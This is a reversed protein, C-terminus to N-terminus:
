LLLRDNDDLTRDLFEKSLYQHNEYFFKIFSKDIFYVDCQDEIFRHGRGCGQEVTLATKHLYWEPYLESKKRIFDDGLFLFPCKFFIIVNCDNGPLNVGETMSAALLVGDTSMRLDYLAKEKETSLNYTILRNVNKSHDLIARSFEYSGTHVLIKKTPNDGIIKDLDRIAGPLDRERNRRTLSHKGIVTYKSSSYDFHNNIKIHEYEDIGLFEATKELNGFTASMFVRQKTYKQFFVKLMQRSNLYNLHIGTEDVTKTVLSEDQVVLEEFDQVKCFTDKIRDFNNLLQIEEGSPVKSKFKIDALYLKIFECLPHISEKLSKLLLMVEANPLDRKLQNLINQVYSSENHKIKYEINILCTVLSDNLWPGFHSHVIDDLKHSEDLFVVDRVSFSNNGHRLSVYNNQILWYSYNLLSFPAVIAKDRSSYYGCTDYCDLKKRFQKKLNCTGFNAPQDNDDCIYNNAGKISPINATLKVLDTTYQDQLSKDSVLVYGTKELQQLVYSCSIAILSKGSGVPADLIIDKTGTLLLYCIKSITEKQHARWIISNQLTFINLHHEIKEGINM